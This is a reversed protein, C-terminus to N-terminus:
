QVLVFCECESSEWSSHSRGFNILLADKKANCETLSPAKLIGTMELIQLAKGM